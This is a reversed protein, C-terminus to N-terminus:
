SGIGLFYLIISLLMAPIGSFFMQPFYNPPITEPNYDRGRKGGFWAIAALGRFVFGIFFIYDILNIKAM